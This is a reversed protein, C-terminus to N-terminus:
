HRTFFSPSEQSYKTFKANIPLWTMIGFCIIAINVNQFILVQIFNVNRFNNKIVKNNCAYSCM